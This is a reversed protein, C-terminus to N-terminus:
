KANQIQVDMQKDQFYKRMEKARQRQFELSVFRRLVFAARCRLVCGIDLETGHCSTCSAALLIRDLLSWTHLAYAQPHRHM